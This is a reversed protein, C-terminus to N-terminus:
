LKFILDHDNNFLIVEKPSLLDIWYQAPLLREDGFSPIKYKDLPVYHISNPHNKCITLIAEDSFHELVGHSVCLENSKSNLIDEKYFFDVGLNTNALQVMKECLDFGSIDIDLKKVLAKSLSGIGCGLEIITKPKLNIITDILPLYRVEFYDQYTSNVRKQYFNFWKSM